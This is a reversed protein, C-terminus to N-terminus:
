SFSCSVQKNEHNTFIVNQYGHDTIRLIKRGHVTGSVGGTRGEALEDLDSEM